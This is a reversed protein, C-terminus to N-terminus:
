KLQGIKKHMSFYMIKDLSINLFFVLTYFFM